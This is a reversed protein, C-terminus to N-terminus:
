QQANLISKIWIYLLTLEPLFFAVLGSTFPHQPYMRTAAQVAYVILAATVLAGIIYAIPSRVFSAQEQKDCDFCAGYQDAQPVAKKYLLASVIM